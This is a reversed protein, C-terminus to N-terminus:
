SPHRVWAPGGHVSVCAVSKLFQQRNPAAKLRRTCGSGRMRGCAIRQERPFALSNRRKPFPCAALFVCIFWTPPTGRVNLRYPRGAGLRQNGRRGAAHQGSPPRGHTAHGIQPLRPPFGGRRGPKRVPVKLLAAAAWQRSGKECMMRTSSACCVASVSFAGNHGNRGQAATLVEQRHSTLSAAASRAWSCSAHGKGRTARHQPHPKAWAVHIAAKNRVVWRIPSRGRTRRDSPRRPSRGRV